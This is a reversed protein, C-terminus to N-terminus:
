GCRVLGPRSGAARRRTHRGYRADNIDMPYAESTPFASTDITAILQANMGSDDGNRSVMAIETGPRNCM